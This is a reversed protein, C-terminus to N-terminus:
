KIDQEDTKLSNEDVNVAVKVRSSALIDAYQRANERDGENIAAQLLQATQKLENLEQRAKMTDSGNVIEKCSSSDNAVVPIFKPGQSFKKLDTEINRQKEVLNVSEDCNCAKLTKECITGQLNLFNELNTGKITTDGEVQGRVDTINISRDEVQDGLDIETINLSHLIEWSKLNEGNEHSSYIRESPQVLNDPIVFSHDDSKLVSNLTPPESLSGYIQRRIREERCLESEESRPRETTSLVKDLGTVRFLNAQPFTNYPKPSFPPSM